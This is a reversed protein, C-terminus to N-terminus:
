DGTVKIVLNRRGRIDPHDIVPASRREGQTSTVIYQTSRQM